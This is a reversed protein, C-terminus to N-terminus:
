EWVSRDAMRKIVREKLRRRLRNKKDEQMPMKTNRGIVREKIKKIVV